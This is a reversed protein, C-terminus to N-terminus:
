NKISRLRLPKKKRTLFNAAEDFDLPKSHFYGQIIDCEMDRLINLQQETEVCEAVITMNLSKGLTIISQVIGENARSLGLGNIFSGDIKITGIPLDQLYSMCSYGTGFDDIAISVGLDKLSQLIPGATSRANLFTNETLEIELYEPELGSGALASAINNFCQQHMVFSPPLNIAMKIPPLGANQWSMNQQCAQKLVWLSVRHMLGIEEVIPLFEDPPILRGELKWRILAEFGVVTEGDIALQPQYMLFFDENEVANHLEMEMRLRYVSKNLMSSKFYRFQGVGQSKAQYMSIDAHKLLSLSDKGDQPFRAIGVSTTIHLLHGSVIAPKSLELIVKNVILEIDEVQEINELLMVFEDGGWRSVSDSKRLIGVLKESIQLLLEDGIGHGLSDNIVKFRDLDLFLVAIESKNRGAIDIAHDLREMLLHRNPLQTLEDYNARNYLQQEHTEITDLMTNVGLILDGIEDHRGGDLRKHYKKNKAVYGVLGILESIPATFRKQIKWNLLYALVLSGLFAWGTVLIYHSKQMALSNTDASIVAIGLHDEDMMIAKSLYFNNNRFIIEGNFQEIPMDVKQGPRKYEAFVAGNADYLQAYRTSTYSKLASLLETAADQDDFLLASKSTSVLLNIENDMTELLNAKYDTIANSYLLGSMILLPLINIAVVSLLQKHFFNIKKVRNNKKM